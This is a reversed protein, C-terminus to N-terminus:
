AKCVELKRHTTFPSLFVVNLQRFYFCDEVAKSLLFQVFIDRFYSTWLYEHMMVVTM